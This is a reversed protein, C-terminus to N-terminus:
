ILPLELEACAARLSERAVALYGEDIEFGVFPVGVRAAALASHGIGLFPDM